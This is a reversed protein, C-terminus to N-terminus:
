RKVKVRIGGTLLKQMLGKKQREQAACKAELSKIEEDATSLIAAIANQEAVTPVAFMRPAIFEWEARPMKSGSSVTASTLFLESQVLVHLFGQSCIEKTPQLVWIESSCVGTTNALHFKRLYPRLKGFLVDGRHFVNKLSAQQKAKVSGLLRGSESEIHELEICTRDETASLPDFKEKRLVALREFPYETWTGRFGPLRIKRTLLQQLLATKRRKAAAALARTQEIAADWTSLIDAMKRQEDKPPVNLKHDLWWGLKFVMKEVDVGISSHFCTQQYYTTHTFAAFWPLYLGEKAHLVTYEGSVLAGDLALPVLGCGGHIIQRNAILFDGVRVIYQGKTKIERGKLRERPVIGGRNRKANVLQYETSDALVAPREVVSLVQGFTRPSWGHPCRGLRPIGPCISPPFGKTAM